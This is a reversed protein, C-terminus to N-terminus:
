DISHKRKVSSVITEATILERIMLNLRATMSIHQRRSIAQFEAKLVKPLRFNMLISTPEIPRDTASM